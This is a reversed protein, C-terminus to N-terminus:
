KDTQTLPVQVRATSILPARTATQQDFSAVDVVVVVSDGQVVIYGQQSQFRGGQLGGVVLVRTISNSEGRARALFARCRRGNTGNTKWLLLCCSAQVIIIALLLLLLILLLCIPQLWASTACDRAITVLAFGAWSGKPHALSFQGYDGVQLALVLRAQHEAFRKDQWRATKASAALQALVGAM